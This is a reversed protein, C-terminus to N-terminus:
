AQSKIQEARAKWHDRREKGFDDRDIESEKLKNHLVNDNGEGRHEGRTLEALPSDQRQGIHHLEIPQGHQDLPALGKEMRQLNTSGFLDQQDYDIDTRLLADKGSVQGPELNAELYLNAEADSGIAEIVSDPYDKQKMEGLTADSVPPLEHRSEQTVFLPKDLEELNGSLHRWKETTEATLLELPTRLEAGAGGFSELNM